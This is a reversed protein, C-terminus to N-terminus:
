SMQDRHLLADDPIRSSEHSSDDTPHQIATNTSRASVRLDWDDQM